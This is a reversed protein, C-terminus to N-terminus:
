CWLKNLERLLMVLYINFNWIKFNFILINGYFGLINILKKIVVVLYRGFFFKFFVFDIEVYLEM